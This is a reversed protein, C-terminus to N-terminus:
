ASNMRARYRESSWMTPGSRRASAIPRATPVAPEATVKAPSVTIMASAASATTHIGNRVAIAETGRERHQDRDQDREGQEWGYEAQDLGLREGAADPAVNWAALLVPLDDVVTDLPGTQVELAVGQSNVSGVAVLLVEVLVELRVRLSVEVPVTLQHVGSRGSATTLLRSLRDARAAVLEAVLYPRATSRVARM